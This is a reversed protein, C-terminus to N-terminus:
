DRRQQEYTAIEKWGERAKIDIDGTEAGTWVDIKTLQGDIEKIALGRLTQVTKWQLAYIGPDSETLSATRKADWSGDKEVKGSNVHIADPTVNVFRRRLLKMGELRGRWTTTDKGFDLADDPGKKDILDGLPDKEIKGKVFTIRLARTKTGEPAPVAEWPNSGSSAFPTWDAEREASPPYAANPKLVSLVVRIDQTQPVPYVVSGLPVPRHFSLVIHQRSKKGGETELYEM